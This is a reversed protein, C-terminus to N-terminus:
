LGMTMHLKDGHSARCGGHPHLAYQGGIFEREREGRKRERKRERERERERV